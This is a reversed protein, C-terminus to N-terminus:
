SDSNNQPAFSAGHTEPNKVSWVHSNIPPKPASFSNFKPSSQLKPCQRQYVYKFISMSFPSKTRPNEWSYCPPDKWLQPVTLVLGPLMISADWGTKVTSKILYEIICHSLSFIPQSSCKIPHNTANLDM